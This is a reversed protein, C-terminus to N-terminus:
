TTLFCCFLNNFYYNNHALLNVDGTNQKLYMNELNILNAIFYLLEADLSLPFSSFLAHRYPRGRTSIIIFLTCFFGLASARHLLTNKYIPKVLMKAFRRLCIDVDCVALGCFYNRM